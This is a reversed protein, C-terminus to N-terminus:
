RTVESFPACMSAPDAMYDWCYEVEIEIYTFDPDGIVNKIAYNEEDLCQM